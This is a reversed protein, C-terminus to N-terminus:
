LRLPVSSLKGEGKQRVIFQLADADCDVAIKILEQTNGSEQGKVWLGRRRSHYAGCGLNLATEISTANSYVLGLCIGREDTVVTPFLGDSRDSRLVATLLLHAPLLNSYREPNTTLDRAPIIAVHGDNVAKIFQDRTSLALTVYRDPSNGNASSRHMADLLGPHHVDHFHIGVPVDPVLAKIKDQISEANGESDSGSVVHDSSVVLRSVDQGVLLREEVIAKLHWYAVFIKIVGSNLLSIIDELNVLATCDCYFVFNQLHEQLFEVTKQYTQPVVTIHVRSLYSVTKVDLGDQLNELDLAILFREAM